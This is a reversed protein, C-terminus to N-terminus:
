ISVETVTLIVSPTSPVPAAASAALIQVSTDSASWVLEFYDGAAMNLVYNRSFLVRDNVGNLQAQGATSAITSGNISAWIYAYATLISTKNLQISFQFNYTGANDVYIRSTTTGVRAGFSLDTANFTINYATNIVAATQTTSDHFAGYHLRKIDVPPPQVLLGNVSETLAMIQATMDSPPPSLQLAYGADILAAANEVSPVLQLDELTIQSAGGGSLLFINYFFRYWERTILGTDSDVFPVRAAPINTVNLM